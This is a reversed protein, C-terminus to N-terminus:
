LHLSLESCQKCFFIPFIQRLNKQCCRLTGREGFGATQSIHNSSQGLGKLGQPHLCPDDRGIVSTDLLLIGRLDLMQKIDIHIQAPPMFVGPQFLKHHITHGDIENVALKEEPVTNVPAAKRFSLLVAEEGTGNQIGQGKQIKCRIDDLAIVPVCGHNGEEGSGLVGTAHLLLYFIEEGDMVNGELAPKIKGEHLIKQPNVRFVIRGLHQLKVATSVKHFGADGKGIFDAGDAGGIGLLDFGGLIGVAEALNEAVPRGIEASNEVANVGLHEVRRLILMDSCM